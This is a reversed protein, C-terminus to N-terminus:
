IIELDDLLAGARAIGWLILSDNGWHFVLHGDTAEAGAIVQRLSRGGGWLADDLRLTDVENRFDHITDRGTGDKLVFVDAGSGGTLSDTGKGGDLQDNGASGALRDAGTGGQLRDQGGGGLLSDGDAGGQLLDDGSSGALSDKGGQGRLLNNAANGTVRDNGSGAVYDELITGRAIALNHIGGTWDSFQGPRLDIRQDSLGFGLDLRDHGGEDYITFAFPAGAFLDADPRSGAVAAFFRGLATDTAMGRGWVTDGASVGGKPAGYLSQVAAIDVMMPSIDWAATAPDTPNSGGQWFYSMVSLSMTDNAFVANTAYNADENYPGQHGLGLAHGIEHVYVYYAYSDITTGSALIDLGVNVSTSLTLHDQIVGGGGWGGPYTDDFTLGAADAGAERFDIDAVAEWAEMGAWALRRGADTLGSVDVRIVMPGPGGDDFSRWGIGGGLPSSWYGHTLYRALDDLSAPALM